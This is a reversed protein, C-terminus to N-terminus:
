GKIGRIGKASAGRARHGHILSLKVLIAKINNALVRLSLLMSELDKVRILVSIGQRLISTGFDFFALLL